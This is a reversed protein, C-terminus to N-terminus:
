IRIEGPGQVGFSAPTLRASEFPELALDRDEADAQSMLRDSLREAAVDNARLLQHVAFGGCDTVVPRRDEGPNRRRERGGPIMRKITFRSVSGSQRSILASVSSPRIMPKPMLFVGNFAHLEM